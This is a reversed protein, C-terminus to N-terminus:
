KFDDILKVFKDIFEKYTPLKNKKMDKQIKKYNKKIKNLTTLLSIFNRKAILIGKKDGVVHKIEDFIITPKKRALAELLAMPHGETFSPLIFINHDDYHKILKTKDNQTPLIKINSQNIGYFTETEAGIVTLSIDRKNKILKALSYIGKEIRIRGM